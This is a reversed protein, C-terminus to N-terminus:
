LAQGAAFVTVRDAMVDRESVQVTNRSAVKEHRLAAAVRICDLLKVAQRLYLYLQNSRLLCTLASM